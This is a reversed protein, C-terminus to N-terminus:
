LFLRAEWFLLMGCCTAKDKPLANDKIWKQKCDGFLLLPKPYVEYQALNVNRLSRPLIGLAKKIALIKIYYNKIDKQRMKTFDAYAKLQEIIENSYLRNDGMTKVEVFVIRKIGEDLRVLDIRITKGKHRSQFESDIFSPDKKLFTHQIGKESTKQYFLKIRDKVKRIASASFGDIKTIEVSPFEVLNNDFFYKVYDKGAIPVYQKHINGSFVKGNLQLGTILSGGNFYVDISNDKRIQISLDKDSKLNSWWRPPSKALKKFLHHNTDLKNM